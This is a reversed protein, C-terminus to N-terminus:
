AYGRRSSRERIDITVVNTTYADKPSTGPPVFEHGPVARFAREVEPSIIRGDAVLKDAM